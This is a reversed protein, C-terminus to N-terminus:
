SIHNEMQKTLIICCIRSLQHLTEGALLEFGTGSEEELYQLMRKEQKSWNHKKWYELAAQKNPHVFSSMEKYRNEYNNALNRDHNDQADFFKCLAGDTLDGKIRTFNKYKKVSKGSWIWDALDEPNEVEALLRAKICLDLLIRDIAHCTYYNKKKFLIEYADLYSLFHECFGLYLVALDTFTKIKSNNESLVRRITEFSKFDPKM